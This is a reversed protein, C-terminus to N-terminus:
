VSFTQGGEAHYNLHVRLKRAAQQALLLMLGRSCATGTVVRLVKAQSIKRDITESCKGFHSIFSIEKLLSCCLLFSIKTAVKISITVVMLGFLSEM